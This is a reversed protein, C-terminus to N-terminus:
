RRRLLAVVRHPEGALVVLVKEWDAYGEALIKIKHKGCSVKYQPSSMGACHSGVFDGDIYIRAPAVPKPIPEMVIELMNSSMRLM